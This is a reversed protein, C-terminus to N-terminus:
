KKMNEMIKLLAEECQRFDAGHTNSGSMYLIEINSKPTKNKKALLSRKLQVANFTNPVLSSSVGLEEAKDCLYKTPAVFLDCEELLKRYRQVGLVYLEKDSSSLQHYGWINNIISPEFIYDDVDFVLKIGLSRIKNLAKQGLIM